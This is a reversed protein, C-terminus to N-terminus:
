LKDLRRELLEERPVQTRTLEIPVERVRVGTKVLLKLTSGVLDLGSTADRIFNFLDTVNDFINMFNIPLRDNQFDATLM